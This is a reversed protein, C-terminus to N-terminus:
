DYRLAPKGSALLGHIDTHDCEDISLHQHRFAGKAHGELFAFGVNCGM